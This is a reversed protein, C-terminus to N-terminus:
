FLSELNFKVLKARHTNELFVSQLFNSYILKRWASAFTIDINTQGQHTRLEYTSPLKSHSSM